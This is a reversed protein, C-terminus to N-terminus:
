IFTEIFRIIKRAHASLMYLLSHFNVEIFYLALSITSIKCILIIFFKINKMECKSQHFYSNLEYKRNFVLFAISKVLKKPHM